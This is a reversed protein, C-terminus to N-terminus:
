EIKDRTFLPKRLIGIRRLRSIPSKKRNKLMVSFIPASIFVSLPAYGGCDRHPIFASSARWMAFLISFCYRLVPRKKMKLTGSGMMGAIMLLFGAIAKNASERRYISFVAPCV